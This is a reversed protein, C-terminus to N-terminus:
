SSLVQPQTTILESSKAARIVVEAVLVVKTSFTSPVLLLSDVQRFNKLAVRFSETPIDHSM